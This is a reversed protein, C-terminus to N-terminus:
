LSIRQNHESYTHAPPRGFFGLFRMRMMIVAIWSVCFALFLLFCGLFFRDKCYVCSKLFELDNLCVLCIRPSINTMRVKELMNALLVNYDMKTCGPCKKPLEKTLNPYRWRNQNRMYIIHLTEAEESSWVDSNCWITDDIYM